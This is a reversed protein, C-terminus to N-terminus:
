PGFAATPRHSQLNQGKHGPRTLVGFAVSAIDRPDVPVAKGKGGPFYVRAQRRITEGWWQILNVMMLTPRLFTWEMGSTEILLEQERHWKGPGLSRDAEITSQKVIRRVGAAKAAGLVNSVQQTLPSVIYVSEIGRMAPGLTEPRDLDGEVCEIRDAIPGMRHKDRVLVRVPLGASALLPVLERGVNGTAGTVLIM